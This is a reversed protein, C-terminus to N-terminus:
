RSPNHHDLYKRFIVLTATNKKILFNEKKERVFLDPFNQFFHTKTTYNPGFNEKELPAFNALIKVDYIHSSFFFATSYYM